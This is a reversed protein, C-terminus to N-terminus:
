YEEQYTQVIQLLDRVYSAAHSLNGYIFNVPNNIEHAVGAVLQGLSLMKEAHILQSQTEHLQAIAAELKQAQIQAAAAAACSQYYLNRQQEAMERQEAESEQQYQRVVADIAPLLDNSALDTIFHFYNNSPLLETDPLTLLVRVAAIYSRLLQDLHVPAEFYIARVAPSPNGPLNLDPDGEILAQHSTEMLDIASQLEERLHDREDATQSCILKCAFLAIRQSLMRQRGSINVVAASVKQVPYVTNFNAVLTNDM